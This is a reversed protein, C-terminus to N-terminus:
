KSKEIINKEIKLLETLTYVKKFINYASIILPILILFGWIEIINLILKVVELLIALITFQYLLRFIKNVQFLYNNKKQLKYTVFCILLSCLSLILLGIVIEIGNILYQSM